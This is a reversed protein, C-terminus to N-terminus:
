DKDVEVVHVLKFDEATLDEDEAYSELYAYSNFWICSNDPETNARYYGPTFVKPRFKYEHDDLFMCRDASTWSGHWYDQGSPRAVYELKTLDIGM